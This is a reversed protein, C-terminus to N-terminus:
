LVCVKVLQLINKFTENLLSNSNNLKNIDLLSTYIELFYVLETLNQLTACQLRCFYCMPFLAEFM